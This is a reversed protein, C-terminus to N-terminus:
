ASPARGSADAVKVAIGKMTGSQDVIMVEFKEPGGASAPVAVLTVKALELVELPVGRFGAAIM